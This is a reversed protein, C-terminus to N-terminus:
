MAPFHQWETEEANVNCIRHMELMEYDLQPALLDEGYLMEQLSICISQLSTM